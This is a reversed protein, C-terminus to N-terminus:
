YADPKPRGLFFKKASRHLKGAYHRLIPIYKYTLVFLLYRDYHYMQKKNEVFHLISLRYQPLAAAVGGLRKTIFSSVGVDEGICGEQRSLGRGRLCANMMNLLDDCYADDIETLQRAYSAKIFYAGGQMFEFPLFHKVPEGYIAAEHDQIFNIFKNSIFIVDSDVKAVIDEDACEGAVELLCRIESNITRKGYGSIHYPAMRIEIGQYNSVLYDKQSKKLVNDPDQYIYVRGSAIARTRSLSILSRKLIEFHPDCTFYVFSISKRKSPM